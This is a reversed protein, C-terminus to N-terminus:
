LILTGCHHCFRVVEKTMQDRVGCMYSRKTLLLISYESPRMDCIACSDVKRVTRSPKCYLGEPNTSVIDRICSKIRSYFKLWKAIEDNATREFVDYDPRHLVNLEILLKINHKRNDMLERMIEIQLRRHEAVSDYIAIACNKCLEDAYRVVARRTTMHFRYVEIGQQQCCECTPQRHKSTRKYAIMRRIECSGFVAENTSGLLVVQINGPTTSLKSHYKWSNSRKNNANMIHRVHNECVVFSSLESPPSTMYRMARKM